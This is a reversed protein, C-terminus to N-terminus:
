IAISWGEYQDPCLLPVLNYKKLVIEDTRADPDKYLWYDWKGDARPVPVESVACKLTKAIDTMQEDLLRVDSMCRYLGYGM